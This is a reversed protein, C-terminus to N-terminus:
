PVMGNNRDKFNRILFILGSIMWLILAGIQSFSLGLPLDPEIDGRIPNTLLRYSAYSWLFALVVNGAKPKRYSYWYLFASLGLLFISEYIQTPHITEGALSYPILESIPVVGWPLDTKTGHCCGALFCGVRVVSLCLPFIPVLLDSTEWIPLQKKWLTFLYGFFGALLGGFLSFGGKTLNFWDLYSQMEQTHELLYVIRAGVVGLLVVAFMLDVYPSPDLGKKHLLFLVLALGMLHALSVMAGYSRLEFGSFEFLIPYM